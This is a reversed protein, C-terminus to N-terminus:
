DTKSAQRIPARYCEIVVADDAESLGQAVTGAYVRHAARALAVLVGAASAGARSM